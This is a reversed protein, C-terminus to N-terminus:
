NYEHAAGFLDQQNEAQSNIWLVEERMVSGAQGAAAVTKKIKKWKLSDYIPHEYGCVIVMGKCRKLANILKEHNDNSMEHRYAKGGMKRTDLVYPPDIFFLTDERDHDEIVKLADRNEILVKKLRKAAHIIVEPQRQWITVIDSGGRGTDLRFGTNGKTAGASGFGMQARIVLRRAQEVKSTTDTRANLFETRSYPTLEILRALEQSLQHDRLVEFFNVVDADLDNYVEVRSPPKSLLVSAGGGFPEVYTRHSPFQSIIWDAIRFKGGHYRILPHNM